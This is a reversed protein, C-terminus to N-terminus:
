EAPQWGRALFADRAAHAEDALGATDDPRCVRSWLPESAIRIVLEEGLPHARESATASRADKVVVWLQREVATPLPPQPRVM